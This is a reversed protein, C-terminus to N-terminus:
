SRFAGCGDDAQASTSERIFQRFRNRLATPDPPDSGDEPHPFAVDEVRVVFDHNEAYVYAARMDGSALRARFEALYSPDVESFQLRAPHPYTQRRRGPQYPTSM